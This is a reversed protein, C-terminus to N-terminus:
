FSPPTDDGSKINLSLSVGGSGCCPCSLAILIQQREDETIDAKDLLEAIQRQFALHVSQDGFVIRDDTEPPKAAPPDSKSM